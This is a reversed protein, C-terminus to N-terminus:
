GGGSRSSWSRTWQDIWCRERASFWRSAANGSWGAPAGHASMWSTVDSTAIAAARLDTAVASASPRVDPEPWAAIPAPVQITTM